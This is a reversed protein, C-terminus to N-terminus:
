LFFTMNHEKWLQLILVQMVKRTGPDLAGLPEDMLLIKPNKLAQVIAVRQQM